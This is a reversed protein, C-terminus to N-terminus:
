LFVLRSSRSPIRMCDDVRACACACKDMLESVVGGRCMGSVRDIRVLLVVCSQEQGAKLKRTFTMEPPRFRRRQESLAPSRYRSRIGRIKEEANNDRSAESRCNGNSSLIVRLM